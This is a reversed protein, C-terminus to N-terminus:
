LFTNFSKLKKHAHINFEMLLAGGRTWIKAKFSDEWSTKMIVMGFEPREIGLTWKERYCKVGELVQKM